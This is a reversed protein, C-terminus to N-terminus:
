ASRRKASIDLTILLDSTDMLRVSARRAGASSAAVLPRPLGLAVFAAPRRLGLNDAARRAASLSWPWYKPLRRLKFDLCLTQTLPTLTRM